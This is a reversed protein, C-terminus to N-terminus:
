PALAAPLCLVDEKAADLTGAALDNAVNRGPQQVFKEQAVCLQTLGKTGQCEVESKCAGGANSPATDACRGKSAAVQVCLLHGNQKAATGNAGTPTCLRVLKKVRVRKPPDTFQDRVTLQLNKPLKPQGKALKVPYCTFRDVLNVTLAPSPTVPDEATPLMLQSSKATDVVMTGLQSTIQRGSQPVPKPQGKQLKIAYAELHTHPDSLPEATTDAPACLQLPKKVDVLVDDFTGNARVGLIPAFKASGASPKAQYCRFSGLRCAISEFSDDDGCASPAGPDRVSGNAIFDEDGRGGDPILLHVVQRAGYPIFDDTSVLSGTGSVDDFVFDWLSSPAGPQPPAQKWWAKVPPSTPLLLGARVVEGVRAGGITFSFFGFPFFKGPHGNPDPDDILRFDTIKLGDLAILAIWEDNDSVLSALSDSLDSPVPAAFEVIDPIGDGDTDPMEAPTACTSFRSTRGDSGTYTVTLGHLDARGIVNFVRTSREPEPARTFLPVKGEPDTCSPNGFVEVSGEGTTPLGTVVLWTRTSAGSTVRAAGTVTPPAPAGKIGSTAATTNYISNSRLTVPESSTVNVGATASNAITNDHVDAKGALVNIGIGNPAATSGFRTIGIKNKFIKVAAASSTIGATSANALTNGPGIETETVGDFLAIGTTVPKATVGDEGVGIVNDTVTVKKSKQVTLATKLAGILNERVSVTDSDAVRIGALATSPADLGVRNDAIVAREAEQIDIEYAGHGAVTNGEVTPDIVGAFLELGSSADPRPALLGIRNQKVVANIGERPKGPASDGPVRFDFQFRNNPLDIISTQMSGAIVIEYTAGSADNDHVTANPVEDMRLNHIAARGITSTGAPNIGLRNGRVIAGDLFSGLLLVNSQANVVTNNEILLRRAAGGTVRALAWIGAGMHGMLQNAGDIGILNGRVVVDDSDHDDDGGFIRVGADQAGIVNRESGAGGIRVRSSGIVAVGRVPELISGTETVGIFNGVVLGDPSNFFRIADDGGLITLGRITVHDAGVVAIGQGSLVVEGSPQTDGDITAGPLTVDPLKSAPEISGAGAPLAFEITDAIGLNLSQIAARLTCEAAGGPIDEGTDCGTTGTLRPRDATSNVVVGVVIVEKEFPASLVGGPGVVRLKVKYKGPLRFTHEVIPGATEKTEGDDFDWRYGTITGKSKSADFRFTRHGLDAVTFTAEETSSPPVNVIYEVYTVYNLRYLPPPPQVGGPVRLRFWHEQPSIPVFRLKCPPDCFPVPDGGGGSGDPRIYEINPAKECIGDGASWEYCLNGNYGWYNDLAGALVPYTQDFITVNGPARTVDLRMLPLGNSTKGDPIAVASITLAANSPLFCGPVGSPEPLEGQNTATKASDCAPPPPGFNRYLPPEAFASAPGFCALFGIALLASIPRHVPPPM